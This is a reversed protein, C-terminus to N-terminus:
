FEIAFGASGMPEREEVDVAEVVAGDPGDALWDLLEGVAWREGEAEVELSGDPLNRVYGSLGLRTAEARAAYRFGVGQVRGRVLAHCRRM